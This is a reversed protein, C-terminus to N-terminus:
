SIVRCLILGERVLSLGFLCLLLGLTRLINRYAASSLFTLRGVAWALLVKSGVLLLYFSGLFVLAAAPSQGWARLVMPGGVGLWFLYPYPSLINVLIGRRLPHAEPRAEAVVVGAGTKRLEGIGMWIVLAGGVLSLIGPLMGHRAVRELGLLILIIIPLDTVLPALAVRIGAAVGRRMTESVVLAMLPGPSLGAGIGLLAGTICYYYLM